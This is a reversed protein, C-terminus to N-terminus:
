RSSVLSDRKRLRSKWVNCKRKRFHSTTMSNLRSFGLHSISVRCIISIRQFHHGRGRLACWKSTYMFGYVYVYIFICLSRSGFTEVSCFNYYLFRLWKQMYIIILSFTARRPVDIKRISLFDIYKELLYSYLYNSPFYFYFLTSFSGLQSKERSEWVAWM